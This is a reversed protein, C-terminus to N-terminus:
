SFPFHKKKRTSLEHRHVSANKHKYGQKRKDKTDEFIHVLGPKIRFRTFIVFNLM